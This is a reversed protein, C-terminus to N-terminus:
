MELQSPFLTKDSVKAEVPTTSLDECQSNTVILKMKCGAVVCHEDLDSKCFGLASNLNTDCTKAIKYDFPQPGELICPKTPKLNLSCPNTIVWLGLFFGKKCM